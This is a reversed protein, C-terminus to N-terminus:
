NAKLLKGIGTGAAIQARGVTCYTEPTNPDVGLEAFRGAGIARLRAKEADNDLYADIEDDSYGLDRAMSDTKQLYFFAKLMRPDIDECKKRIIDAMGITLLRETIVSEDRLEAISFTPTMLVCLVAVCGFKMRHKM